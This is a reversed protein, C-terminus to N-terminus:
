QWPCKESLLARLLATDLRALGYLNTPSWAEPHKPHGAEGVGAVSKLDKQFGTAHRATAPHIGAFLSGPRLM